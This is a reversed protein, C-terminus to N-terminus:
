KAYEPVRAGAPAPRGDAAPNIALIRAELKKMEAAVARFEDASDSLATQADEAADALGTVQEGVKARRIDESVQAIAAAVGNMKEIMEASGTKAAASMTKETEAAINKLISQVRELAENEIMASIGKFDSAFREVVLRATEASQTVAAQEIKTELMGFKKTINNVTTSLAQMHERVIAADDAFDIEEIGDLIDNMAETSRTTLKTLGEGHATVTRDLAVMTSKHADEALKRGFLKMENAFGHLGTTLAGLNRDFTVVHEAMSVEKVTTSFLQIAGTADRTILELNDRFTQTMERATTEFSRAAGCVVKETREQLSCSLGEFSAASMEVKTVVDDIRRIYAEITEDLDKKGLQETIATLWMRFALALGTALLGVGFHAILAGIDQGIGHMWVRFVSAALSFITILFGFYYISDVASQGLSGDQRAERLLRSFYWALPLLELTAALPLPLAAFTALVVASLSAIGSVIFHYNISKM